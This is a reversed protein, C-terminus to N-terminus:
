REWIESSGKEKWNNSVIYPLPTYTSMIDVNIHVCAFIHLASRICVYVNM